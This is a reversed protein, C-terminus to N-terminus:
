RSVYLKTPNLSHKCKHHIGRSMGSIGSWKRKERAFNPLGSIMGMEDRRWGLRQGLVRLYHLGNVVERREEVTADVVDSALFVFATCYRFFATYPSCVAVM